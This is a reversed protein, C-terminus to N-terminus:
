VIASQYSWRVPIGIVVDNSNKSNVQFGMVEHETEKSNVMKTEKEEKTESCLNDGLTVVRVSFHIVGNRRGEWNRLGYCYMQPVSESVVNNGGLFDSLAIRAVGIPRVGKYKKCQVEFTVSRAYSPVDLLFTENWAHVGGDENVMKTTCSNLSEAGVVVYVNAAVSSQDVSINEGSMVTIELTQSHSKAEM